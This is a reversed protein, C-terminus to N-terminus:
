RFASGALEAPQLLAHKLLHLLWGVHSSNRLQLPCNGLALSAVM